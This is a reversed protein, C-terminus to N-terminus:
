DPDAAETKGKTTPCSILVMVFGVITVTLVIGDFWLDAADTCKNIFYM